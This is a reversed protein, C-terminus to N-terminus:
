ESKATLMLIPTFPNRERIRRCVSIGDMQPLMLDLIILSHAGALAKQLGVKGDHARETRFGLDHLNMAVVESIERDDDIILVSGDM